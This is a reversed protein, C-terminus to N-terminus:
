NLEEIQNSLYTHTGKLQKQGISYMAFAVNRAMIPRYKRLNGVLFFSFIPSLWTAIKEGLRSETREGLLLSPQFIHLSPVGINKVAAEVEGKVQNYFIKSKADSGLATVILFKEVENEKAIKCLAVPYEYDVKKFGAQTGANKITTDLCCYVDNVKFYSDYRELQDFDVVIQELRPHEISIPRRVFVKVTKYDPSKLLIKLLENGVLGSAGVLLASKNNESM